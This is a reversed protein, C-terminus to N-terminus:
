PHKRNSWMNERIKKMSQKQYELQKEKACM